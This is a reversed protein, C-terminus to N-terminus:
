FRHKHKEVPGSNVCFFVFFTELSHPRWEVHLKEGGQGAQDNDLDVRTSDIHKRARRCSQHILSHRRSFRGMMGSGQGVFGDAEHGVVVPRIRLPSPDVRRTQGAAALLRAARTHMCSYANTDTRSIFHLHVDRTYCMCGPWAHIHPNHRRCCGHHCHWHWHWHPSFALSFPFCHLVESQM